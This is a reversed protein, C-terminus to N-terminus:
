DERGICLEQWELRATLSEVLQGRGELVGLSGLKLEDILLKFLMLRQSSLLETM